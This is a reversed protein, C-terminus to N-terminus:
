AFSIYAEEVVEAGEKASQAVRLIRVIRIIQVLFRVFLLLVSLSGVLKWKVTSEILDFVFTGVCVVCVFVDFHHWPERCYGSGFIMMDCLTESVIFMTIIGEGLLPLLSTPDLHLRPVHTALVFYFVLVLSLLVMLSCFLLHTSGLRHRQIEDRMLDVWTLSKDQSLLASQESYKDTASVLCAGPATSVAM